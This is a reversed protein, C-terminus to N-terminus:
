LDRKCLVACGCRKGFMLSMVISLALIFTRREALALTASKGVYDWETEQDLGPGFMIKM